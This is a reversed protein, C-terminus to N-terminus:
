GDGGSGKMPYFGIVHYKNRSLWDKAARSTWYKSNFQIGQLHRHGNGILGWMADIGEGFYDARHDWEHFRRPKMLWAHFWLRQRATRSRRRLRRHLKNSVFEFYYVALVLVMSAGVLAVTAQLFTWIM